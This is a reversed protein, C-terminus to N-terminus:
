KAYFGCDLCGDEPDIGRPHTCTSQLRELEEYMAVETASPADNMTPSDTDGAILVSANTNESM